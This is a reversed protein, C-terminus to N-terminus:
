FGSGSDDNDDDGDARDAIDQPIEAAEGPIAYSGDLWNGLDM